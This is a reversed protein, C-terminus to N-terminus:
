VRFMTCTVHEFLLYVLLDIKSKKLATEVSAMPTEALWSKMLHMMFDSSIGEKVAIETDISSIPKIIADGQMLLKGYVKALKTRQEPTFVKIFKLCKTLQEELTIQLFKFRRILKQILTAFGKCYDEGDPLQFVSLACIEGQVAGGPALVGGTFLIDFLTEGYLHYDQTNNLVDLFKSAELSPHILTVSQFM